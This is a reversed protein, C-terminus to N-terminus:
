KKEEFEVDIVDDPKAAGPGGDALRGGTRGPRGPARRRRPGGAAYLHEAMAQSARQLEDVGAQDRGRRGRRSRTSRTSPAASPRWTPNASLKDKNEELLKELQYVRQEATNRAEALERRKKDEAAHAEADRQM